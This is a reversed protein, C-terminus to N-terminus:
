KQQCTDGATAPVSVHPEGSWMPSRRVVVVGGGDDCKVGVVVREELPTSMSSGLETAAASSLSRSKM